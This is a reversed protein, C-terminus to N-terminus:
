TVVEGIPELIHITRCKEKGNNKGINAGWVVNGDEREGGGRQQMCTLRKVIAKTAVGRRSGERDTAM